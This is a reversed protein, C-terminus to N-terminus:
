IIYVCCYPNYPECLRRDKNCYKCHINDRYEEITMNLFNWISGKYNTLEPSISIEEFEEETMRVESGM